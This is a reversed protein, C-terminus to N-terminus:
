PHLNIWQILFMLFIKWTYIKKIYFLCYFIESISINGCLGSNIWILKYIPYDLNFINLDVKTFEIYFNAITNDLQM